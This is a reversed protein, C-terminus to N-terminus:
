AATGAAAARMADVPAPHGTWLEFSRAGQRVLVELGGVFRSGAEEAWEQVPTRHTGYVLDVIVEPPDMDVLPLEEGTDEPALGVATCNVLVDCGGPREAVAVGFEGALIQARTVTRNWVAVEAGAERLAWVVARASGGAGLVIASRGSLDDMGLADAFGGADTNDAVIAGEHYTLTNAAGIADAAEGREDALAHAALKHPVTVNIGAFGSAGLARATATFRPPALPLPLYLWDLAVEALAANQMAPSRSHAVPWGAVGLLTRTM